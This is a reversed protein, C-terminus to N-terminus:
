VIQRRTALYTYISTSPLSSRLFGVLGFGVYQRCKGLNEQPTKPQLIDRRCKSEAVRVALLYIFYGFNILVDNWQAIHSHSYKFVM